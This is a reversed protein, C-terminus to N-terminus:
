KCGGEIAERVVAANKVRDKRVYVQFVMGMEEGLEEDMNAKEDLIDCLPYSAVYSIGQVIGTKAAQGMDADARRRYMVASSSVGRTMNLEGDPHGLVANSSPSIYIPLASDLGFIKTQPRISTVNRMVRPVIRFKRFADKNNRMSIGDLAGTHYYASAQKSM